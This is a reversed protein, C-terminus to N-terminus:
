NRLVRSAILIDISVFLEVVCLYLSESVFDEVLPSDGKNQVQGNRCAGDACGYLSPILGTRIARIQLKGISEIDATFTYM